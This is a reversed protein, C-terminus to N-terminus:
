EFSNTIANYIVEYTAMIGYKKTKENFISPSTNTRKFNMKMLESDIEDTMNMCDRQRDSYCTIYIQFMSKIPFNNFRKIVSKLPTHLEICPFISETTPYSLTQEYNLFQLKESVIDSFKKLGLDVM